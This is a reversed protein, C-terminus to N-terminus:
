RNELNYKAAQLVRPNTSNACQIHSGCFYTLQMDQGGGGVQCELDGDGVCTEFDKNFWALPPKTPRGSWRKNSRLYYYHSVTRDVPDRVMNMMNVQKEGLSAWDPQFFHRDFVM